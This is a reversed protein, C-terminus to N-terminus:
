IKWGFDKGIREYKKPNKDNIRKKNIPKNINKYWKKIKIDIM